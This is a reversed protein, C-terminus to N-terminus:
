DCVTCKIKDKEIKLHVAKIHLSLESAKTAKFDCTKCPYQRQQFHITKVHMKLNSEDTFSSECMNCQHRRGEHM